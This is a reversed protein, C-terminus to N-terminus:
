SWTASNAGDGVGPTDERLKTRQGPPAYSREGQPVPVLAFSAQRWASPAKAGPSTHRCSLMVPLTKSAEYSTSASPRTIGRRVPRAKTVASAVSSRSSRSGRRKPRRSAHGAADEDEPGAHDAEARGEEGRRLTELDRHEVLSRLVAAAARVAVRPHDHGAVHDGQGGGAD